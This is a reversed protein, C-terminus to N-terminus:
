ILNFKSMKVKNNSCGVDGIRSVLVPGIPPLSKPPKINLIFFGM